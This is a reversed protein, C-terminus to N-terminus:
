QCKRKEGAQLQMSHGHSRRNASLKPWVIHAYCLLLATVRRVNRKRFTQNRRSREQWEGLATSDQAYMGPTYAQTEPCRRRGLFWVDQVCVNTHCMCRYWQRKMRTQAYNSKCAKSLGRATTDTPRQAMVNERRNAQICLMSEVNARGYLDRYLRRPADFSTGGRRDRYTYFVVATYGNVTPFAPPLAPRANLSRDQRAVGIGEGRDGM